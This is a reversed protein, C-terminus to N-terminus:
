ATCISITYTSSITSPLTKKYLFILLIDLKMYANNMSRDVERKGWGEGWGWNEDLDASRDVSYLLDGPSLLHNLGGVIMGSYHSGLGEM